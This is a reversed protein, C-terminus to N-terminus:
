IQKCRLLRKFHNSRNALLLLWVLLAIVSIVVGLNFGRITFSEKLMFNGEPLQYARLLGNSAGMADIKTERGDQFTLEGVWGPFFLENQYFLCPKNLQFSIKVESLTYNLYKFQGCQTDENKILDVYSLFKNSPSVFHGESKKMMFAKLDEKEDMLITKARQLTIGYDVMSFEGNLWGRWFFEDDSFVREPRFSAGKIIWNSLEPSFIKTDFKTKAIYWQDYNEVKWSLSNSEVARYFDL